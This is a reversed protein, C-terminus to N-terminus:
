VAGARRRGEGPHRGPAHEPEPRGADADAEARDHDLRRHRRGAAAHARAHLQRHRRGREPADIWGDRDRSGRAGRRRRGPGHLPRDGRGASGGCLLEQGRDLGHDALRDHDHDRHQLRDHPDRGQGTGVGDIIRIAAGSLGGLGNFPGIPAGVTLVTGNVSAVTGTIEATSAPATYGQVVYRDGSSPAVDWDTMLYLKGGINHRIYRSQGAGAGTVLRVILGRLQGEGFAGFGGAIEDKRSLTMAVTGEFADISALKHAVHEFQFGERIADDGAGVTITATRNSGAFTVSSQSLTLQGPHLPNLQVIVDGIGPRNLRITYETSPGNEAVNPQAAGGAPLLVVGVADSDLLRVAINNLAFANYNGIERVMWTFAGDPATELAETLTIVGGAVSAITAQQSVGNPGTVILTKGTLDHGALAGAAVNVTNGAGSVVNGGIQGIVLNQLPIIREGEASRDDIARVHVTRVVDWGLAGGAAPKFTLTVSPAWNVGDLSLEVSESRISKTFPSPAPRSITVVVDSTPAFTMVITFADSTTGHENVVTQGGGIPKVVFGPADNDVIDAAIGDVATGTWGGGGLM